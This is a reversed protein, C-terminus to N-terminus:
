QPAPAPRAAARTAAGACSSQREGARRCAASADRRVAGPPGAVRGAAQASGARGWLQEGAAAGRQGRGRVGDWGVAVAPATLPAAPAARSRADCTPWAACSAACSAALAARVRAESAEPSTLQRAAGRRRPRCRPGGGRAQCADASPWGLQIRVPVMVVLWGRVVVRRQWWGGGGAVWWRRWWWGGGAEEGAFGM